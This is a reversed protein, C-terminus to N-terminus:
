PNTQLYEEIASFDGHKAKDVLNRFFTVSEKVFGGAEEPDGDKHLPMLSILREVAGVATQERTVDRADHAAAWERLWANSSQGWAAIYGLRSGFVADAPLDPQTWAAGAPLPMEQQAAYFEDVVTQRDSFYSFYAWAGTPIAVVLIAAAFAVLTLRRVRSSRPVASRRAQRDDAANALISERTAERTWSSLPPMTRAPDAARITGILRDTM